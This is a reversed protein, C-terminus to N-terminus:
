SADESPTEKPAWKEALKEVVHPHLDMHAKCLAAVAELSPRRRAVEAGEAEPWDEDQSILEEFDALAGSWCGVYLYWGAPTPHFTVEGSPLGQLHLVQANKTAGSLDAWSLNAGSLNAWRLDAGSLNAWRLDAVSLSAWRLDAGSLDAKRLNAGSLDAWRLNAGSLDAGSLDAWRLNAGSLDAGSLDAGSLDAKRLNAGSLDARSLDARSLDAERLYARIGGEEDQAWLKHLRLVEALEEPTYRKMSM